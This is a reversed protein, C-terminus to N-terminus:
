IPTIKQASYFSKDNFKIGKKIMVQLIYEFLSTKKDQGLVM